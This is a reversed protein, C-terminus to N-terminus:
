TRSSTTVAGGGEVGFLYAYSPMFSAHSVETPNFFHARLWLPSRRTGVESLDPGLRRNGILPPRERHLEEVTQMPGWLLVDPTNPRIYQSHCNICGESIYVQRGRAVASMRPSEANRSTTRQEICFAVSVVAATVVFERMRRRALMVLGPALIVLGAVLVFAAPVHGLNQGMGIGMASGFWGAVAYVWGAQTAREREADTQALLSPYAVLAVSYLSVGVPYFASALVAREAHLLLLCAAALAFFAVALVFYLGRRRLLWASALAAILHLIGNSWLHVSGQWTGAKLAPTNQIIFFAASDLWVLATFCALVCRFSLARPGNPIAEEGNVTGSVTGRSTISAGV